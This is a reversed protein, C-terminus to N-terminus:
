PRDSSQRAYEPSPLHSWTSWLGLCSFATLNDQNFPRSFLSADLVLRRKINENQPIWRLFNAVVDTTPDVDSRPDSTLLSLYLPLGRSLQWISDIRATTTIGRQELHAQTEQFTFSTLAISYIVKNDRYPLWLKPDDPLSRGIPIRGATLIVISNSIDSTLFYDLLWPAAETALQEFTDFLLLIRHRRKTRESTTVFSEALRNIETIFANTLDRIPDELRVSVLRNQKTHYRDLVQATTMKLGERLLPGVIPVGEVAAVAFDPARQLVADQMTEQEDQQKRLAAKYHTIARSFEQHMHLQATFKEMMSAPTAQREDVIAALCYEQFAPSNVMEIYRNVLTSKGVGGDGYISIINYAPDDRQLIHETFFSLENARGVFIKHSNDPPLSGKSTNKKSSLCAM